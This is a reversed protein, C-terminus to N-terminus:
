KPKRVAVVAEELPEVVLLEDVDPEVVPIIGCNM